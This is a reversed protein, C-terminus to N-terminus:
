DLSDLEKAALREELEMNASRLNSLKTQIDQMYIEKERM